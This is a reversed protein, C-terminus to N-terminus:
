DWGGESTLSNPRTSVSLGLTSQSPAVRAAHPPGRRRPESAQQAAALAIKVQRATSTVDLVPGPMVAQGITPTVSTVRVPGREFVVSGLPLERKAPSGYLLVVPRGGIAYLTQGRSIVQGVAPLKTFTSNQGYSM